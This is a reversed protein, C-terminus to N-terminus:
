KKIDPKSLTPETEHEWRSPSWSFFDAGNKLLWGCAGLVSLVISIGLTLVITKM